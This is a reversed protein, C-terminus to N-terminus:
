WTVLDTHGFGKTYDLVSIVTPTVRFIRVQDATPMPGPRAKKAGILRKKETEPVRLHLVDRITPSRSPDNSVEIWEAIEKTAPPAATRQLRQMRLWVAGDADSSDLTMGPLGSLEHEHLIFQSGDALKHQALRTALREDLKVLAEVYDLLGNLRTTAVRDESTLPGSV